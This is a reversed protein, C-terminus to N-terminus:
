LAVLRPEQWEISPTRQASDFAAGAIWRNRRAIPRMVEPLFDQFPFSEEVDDAVVDKSFGAFLLDLVGTVVVQDLMRSSAALGIADRPERVTQRTEVGVGIFLDKNAHDHDGVAPHEVPLKLIRDVLDLVCLTDDLRDVLSLPLECLGKHVASCSHNCRQVLNRECHTAEECHCAGFRSINRRFSLELLLVHPPLINRLAAVRHDNVFSM